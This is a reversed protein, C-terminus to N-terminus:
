LSALLPYEEALAKDILIAQDPLSDVCFCRYSYGNISLTQNRVAVRAAIKASTRPTLFEGFTALFFFTETYAAPRLDQFNDYLDMGFFRLNLYFASHPRAPVPQRNLQSVRRKAEEADYLLTFLEPRDRCFQEFYVTIFLDRSFPLYLADGDAFHVLFEMGTRQLPNGRYGSIHTVLYQSHDISAM